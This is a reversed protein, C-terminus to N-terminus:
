IVTIIGTMINNHEKSEKVLNDPDVTITVPFAGSAAPAIASMPIELTNGGVVSVFACSVNRGSVTCGPYTGTVRLDTFGSPLAVNVRVGKADSSGRNTVSATFYTQSRQAHADGTRFGPTLDALYSPGPMPNLPAAFASAPALVTAALGLSLATVVLANLTRQAIRAALTRPNM